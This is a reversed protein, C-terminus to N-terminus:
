AGSAPRRVGERWTEGGYPIWALDADAFLVAYAIRRPCPEPLRNLEPARGAGDADVPM